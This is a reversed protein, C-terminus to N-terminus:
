LHIGLRLGIADDFHNDGHVPSDHLTYRYQVGTYMSFPLEYYLGFDGQATFGYGINSENWHTVSLKDSIKAFGSWGMVATGGEVFSDIYNLGIYPKFAYTDSAIGTYGIGVLATKTEGFDAVFQTGQLYASVNSLITYHMTLKTFSTDGIADYESFGYISAAGETYGGEIGVVAAESNNGDTSADNQVYDTYLNTWGFGEALTPASVFATLALAATIIKKM